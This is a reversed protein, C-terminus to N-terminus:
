GQIYTSADTRQDRGKRRVTCKIQWSKTAQEIVLDGATGLAHHDGTGGALRM